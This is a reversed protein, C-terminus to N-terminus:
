FTIRKHLLHQDLRVTALLHAIRQPTKRDRYPNRALLLKRGFAQSSATMIARKIADARHPVDIVNSGRQRGWQRTGINVVPLKLGPAEVIGASSNGVMVTAERMLAQFEDRPLSRIIRIFPLRQCRKIVRIIDDAGADQNPYCVVTQQGLQIIARMTAEMQARAQEVETSVPHQSVLIIPKKPDLGLRAAVTKSQQRLRAPRDAGVTGVTYIRWPEEGMKRIRDASMRTGPFHISSLSTIARRAADDISGSVDGGSVHAIPVNLYAAAVAGALAEFRDGELLLVQPRLRHLAVAIEDVLISFAKAIDLPRTEEPLRIISGIQFPDKRIVDITHGFKKSLHTGTVILSLKLKPHQDIAMLTSRMLGYDARTGTLYIIKRKRSPNM